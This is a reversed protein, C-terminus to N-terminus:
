PSWLVGLGLEVAEFPEARVSADDRATTVLLWGRGTELRFVELTKVIPDVLWVHGVAERAYIDMKDTRDLKETSPSVVECVWDPAVAFFAPDEGEDLNPARGRRWGALDPVLIDPEAGLHLEPGDLILWGGPGGGEGLDFPGGLRVGLVSAARAHRRRPRPFTHLVGYLVEAVLQPPCRLVDEYTARRTARDGM